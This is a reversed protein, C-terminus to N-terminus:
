GWFWDSPRWSSRSSPTDGTTALRMTFRPRDEIGSAREYRVGIIFSRMSGKTMVSM